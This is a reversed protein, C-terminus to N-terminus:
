ANHAKEAHHHDPEMVIRLDGHRRTCGRQDLAAMLPLVYKRTTSLVDRARAATLPGEEVFAKYLLEHAQDLKNATMAIDPAIRILQGMAELERVVSQANSEAIAETLNPPSFEGAELIEILLEAARAQGADLQV